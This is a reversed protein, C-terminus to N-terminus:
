VSQFVYTLISQEDLDLNADESNVTSPASNSNSNAPKTEVDVNTVVASDTNKSSAEKLHPGSTGSNSVALSARESTRHHLASSSTDPSQVLRQEPKIPETGSHTLGERTSTVTRKSRVNRQVNKRTKNGSVRDLEASDPFQVPLLCSVIFSFAICVLIHM